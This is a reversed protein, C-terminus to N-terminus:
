KTQKYVCWKVYVLYGKFPDHKKNELRNNILLKTKIKVTKRHFNWMSMVTEDFVVYNEYLWSLVIKIVSCDYYFYMKIDFLFFIQCTNKYM